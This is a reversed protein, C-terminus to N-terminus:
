KNDEWFVPEVLPIYTLSGVKGIGWHGWGAGESFMKFNAYLMSGEPFIALYVGTQKPYIKGTIM